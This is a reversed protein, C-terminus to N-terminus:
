NPEGTGTSFANPERRKPRGVSTYTFGHKEVEEPRYINRLDVFVPASSCSGQHARPRPRPVADWETVIVLADAGEACTM